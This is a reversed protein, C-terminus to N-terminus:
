VIPGFLRRWGEGDGSELYKQDAKRLTWTEASSFAVSCMYCKVLEKRLNLYLTSRFLRRGLLLLFLM